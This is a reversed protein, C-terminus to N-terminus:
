WLSLQRAAERQGETQPPVFRSTDLTSRPGQNIGFRDCATRFRKELLEAYVGTGRQRFGFRPDNDRGGRMQNLLSMVHKAKLPEHTELWDRFLQKVEFPLRVILYGASRAGANAAAELISELEGDTLLPIVPAVMVTVPVGAESLLKVMRLRAQPSAARPELTRKLAPDLTTISLAVSVLNRAAMRSLVDLDREILSGKTVISVPHHCEDL